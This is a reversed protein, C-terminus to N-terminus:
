VVATMEFQPQAGVIRVRGWDGEVLLAEGDVAVIDINGLDEEGDADTYRATTRREWEIRSAGAFTLTGLAYCYQEGPQPPHYAPSEPTLVADLKFTLQGPAEAIGIVYSDELYVGTLGPFQSYDIM